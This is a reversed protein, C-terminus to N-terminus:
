EGGAELAQLIRDAAEPYHEATSLIAVRLSRWEASATVALSGKVELKDAQLVGAQSLYLKVASVDGELAKTRLARYVAGLNARELDLVARHVDQWFTPEHELEWVM